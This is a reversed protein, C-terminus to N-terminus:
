FPPGRRLDARSSAMGGAKILRRLLARYAVEDVQDKDNVPTLTPVIIGYMEKSIM